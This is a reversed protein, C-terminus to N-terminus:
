SIGFAAAARWLLVSSKFDTCPTESCPHGIHAMHVRIQHTRGTHLLLRVLTATGFREQVTCDTIAERGGPMVAIRKRDKASRALPADIRIFDRSINGEVLALYERPLYSGSVATCAAKHPMM